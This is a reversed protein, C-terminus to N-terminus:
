DFGPAHNLSPTERGRRDTAIRDISHVPGDGPDPGHDLRFGRGARPSGDRGGPPIRHTPGALVGRFGAVNQWMRGSRALFRTHDPDPRIRRDPAGARREPGTPGPLRVLTLIKKARGVVDPM